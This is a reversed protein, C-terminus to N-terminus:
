NIRMLKNNSSFNYDYVLQCISKVAQQMIATM